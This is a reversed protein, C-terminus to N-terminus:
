PSSLVREGDFVGQLWSPYGAAVYSQLRLDGTVSQAILNAGRNAEVVEVVVKWNLIGDLVMLVEQSHYRYSPWAKPRNVMGVFSPDQFAFVVKSLRHSHVSEAAWLFCKLKADIVDVCNSFPRRSHMIVNGEHDRIVWAGGALRSRKAWSFGINCKLWGRSPATWGLSGKSVSSVVEVDGVNDGNLDEGVEVVQAENWELVDERIKGVTEAATFSKGEFLRSNRSKWIRWLIWPFSLRLELPWLFNRRNSLLYAVNSFVSGDQFGGPPSPFDSMAWVQRAFSCAFLVHFVDEGEWGCTQCREDVKSGRGNLATAVPLAGSLCKWLFVKIKPDTLLDWVQVKLDNTSPLASAERSVVSPVAMTALWYASKVSFEGSKNHKWVYFDSLSVVPKIKKIIEIDGPVFLDRLIDPDWDRLSLDILSCVKLSVDFFYNRRYPARMGEEEDEIWPDIWVNLSSGNGVRKEIGKTLLSRGHVISRWAYSPRNGIPASLFENDPFYRSKMFQSDSWWYDAMASSLNDCTTKPLKFCSMAFIPMAMAVSKLLVEKGGQSLNRSYWGSLKMKLRDKIYDLLDVKSGSFCEPLGLYTGAGGEKFIGLSGQIDIKVESAVKSGFTISSKSLNVAQGTVAGYNTLITQLVLSQEKSAKCMFLSDDAFLLHHIEPGNLSFKVGEIKGERQAKNMLHTLGETCLVFLFPSLPDGQRIGREPVILGYPQDNVLVSFTVTSVCLLIWEVWRSHFGLKLLLSRLFSWEVRDYAKSMDSKLAMFDKSIIPHTQLSHVIEHAVMINDTILRDSVFASQNVSVIQPLFPQLRKVIIKSIIKYLVSCLSIPRLDVMQSPHHTKPLLCLHTYNWESPMVGNDFFNQVESTVKQGVLKWYRHYFLASMGDPGPASTAKISFVAEKVEEASVKEVLRKNMEETVRPVFGSFWDDFSSPNSSKFLNQFYAAAVEGKAAESKQFNGNVDLLKEIRKRSRNDKVSAHFFKSNRNGSRMWKQRSKQQWFQEEERYAVALEKKLIRTQRLNPWVKSQLVELAAECRHIKDLANMDNKKKWNSLSKRCVKLRQSVSFGSDNRKSNWAQEIAKHVEPKYLFRKDFRFQGRYTDKSSILSVLVPRHDSGRLDMFTQNSAPFYVFWDKNGFARDLRSQIWHDGRRGAWTFKNGQSPLEVMDCVDLLDSFPKFYSDCRRPGGNKEGNNLISNFDGLMIWRDKRGVAVRSIREWVAGRKTVDPDGYVCSVFFNKAGFQVQLDILNKDMFLVEVEINNKCFVALGGCKGIPEVTIVREYGLWCEQFSLKSVKATSTSGEDAKRKAKEKKKEMVVLDSREGIELNPIFPKPKRNNKSPRKRTKTQKQVIGSSGAEFLGSGFVTSNHQFPQSLVLSTSPDNVLFSTGPDLLWSREQSIKAACELLGYGPFSASQTNLSSVGDEYNFVVGKEKAMDKHIIPLPELRLISKSALPDKEVEGVSQRVRDIRILKEEESSVRLYQRMGELVMPAIRPRGTAPDVGVQEEGLVGFLPDSEKLVLPKKVKEMSGGARRATAVEQRKRILVPCVDKEHTMRQCEYCRKQVREYEFYVSATEGKPLNVVKSRRLPRSVDFIVKVRVFEDIQPKDPTFVVEVVQGIQEGLLTIAKETYYNIPLNWIQIWLPTFQLYDDPPNEYWRDVVITWDNFTHLGKALVEELDHESNFFFQFREKSLAVGRVRGEKQWKRPMNRILNKMSQCEPNLTRGVISLVNEKCSSYDPLDPMVLPVDEEDLSMAMMARDMASSM